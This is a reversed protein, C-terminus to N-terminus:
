NRGFNLAKREVRSPDIMDVVGENGAKSRLAPIHGSGVLVLM